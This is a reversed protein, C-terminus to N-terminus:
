TKLGKVESATIHYTTDYSTQKQLQRVTTAWVSIFDGGPDPLLFLIGNFSKLAGLTPFDKLASTVPTTM